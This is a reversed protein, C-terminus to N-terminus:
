WEDFQGVFELKDNQWTLGIRVFVFAFTTVNYILFAANETDFNLHMGFPSVVVTWKGSDVAM